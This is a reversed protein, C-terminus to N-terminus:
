CGLAYSVGTSMYISNTGATCSGNSLVPLTCRVRNILSNKFNNMNEPDRFSMICYDGGGPTTIYLFGANIAVMPNPDQPIKSLYHKSVLATNLNVPTPNVPDVQIQNTTLYLQATCDFCTWRGGTDPYHGADNQYNELATRIERLTDARYTDRARMRASNLPALVISSLLSIIAIVVLLEILTFGKESVKKRLGLPLRSREM